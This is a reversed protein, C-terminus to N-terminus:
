EGTEGQQAGEEGAGAPDGGRGVSLGHFQQIYPIGGKRVSQALFAQIAIVRRQKGVDM